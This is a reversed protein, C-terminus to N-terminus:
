RVSLRGADLLNLDVHEGITQALVDIVETTTSAEVAAVAARQAAALDVQRVLWRVLPLAGPSSSLV